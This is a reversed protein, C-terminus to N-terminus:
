QGNPKREIFTGNKRGNRYIGKTITGDKYYMTGKGHM